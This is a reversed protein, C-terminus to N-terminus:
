AVQLRALVQGQRNLVCGEGMAVYEGCLATINVQHTVWVEFTGDKTGALAQRLQQTQDPLTVRDNFVSNLPPWLQAQGFALRATDQCRCWASTRVAGPKLHRQMFWAGIRQADARGAPSLNRQTSCVALNFEPPDGIGPDTAAHRLMLVCGGARLVDAPDRAAATATTALSPLGLALLGVLVERRPLEFPRKDFPNLMM